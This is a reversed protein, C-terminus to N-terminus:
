KSFVGPPRLASCLIPEPKCILIIFFPKILKNSTLLSDSNGRLLWKPVRQKLQTTHKRSTSAAPPFSVGVIVWAALSGLISRCGAGIGRSLRGAKLKAGITLFIEELTTVM